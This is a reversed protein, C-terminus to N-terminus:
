LLVWCWSVLSVVFVMLSVVKSVGPVGSNSGTAGQALDLYVNHTGMAKLFGTLREQNIVDGKKSWVFFKIENTEDFTHELDDMTTYSYAAPGARLSFVIKMQSNVVDFNGIYEKMKNTQEQTYGAKNSEATGPTTSWGLSISGKGYDVVPELFKDADLTEQNEGMPGKAINAHFWIENPWRDDIKKLIEIVPVLAEVDTFALKIHKTILPNERNFTHIQRLFSETSLDSARHPPECMIPIRIAPGPKITGITVDGEIM